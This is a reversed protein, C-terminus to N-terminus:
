GLTDGALEPEADAMSEAQRGRLAELHRVFAPLRRTSISYDAPRLGPTGVLISWPQGFGEFTAAELRHAELNEGSLFGIPTGPRAFYGLMRAPGDASVVIEAGRVLALQERFPREDADVVTFDHARSWDEVDALNVLSRYRADKGTLFLRKPTGAEALAEVKEEHRVYLGALAAGDVTLVHRDLPEGAPPIPLFTPTSCVWLRSVM